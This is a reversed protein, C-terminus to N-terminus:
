DTDRKKSLVNWINEFIKCLAGNAMVNATTVIPDLFINFAIILAIMEPTFSLYAEYIPIMIFM